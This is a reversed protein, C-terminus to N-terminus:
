PKWTDEADSLRAGKCVSWWPCWTSSCLYHDENRQWPRKVGLADAVDVYTRLHDTLWAEHAKTRQVDVIQTTAAAAEGRVMVGFHFLIPYRYPWEGDLAGHM